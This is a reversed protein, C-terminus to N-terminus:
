FKAFISFTCCGFDTASLIAAATVFHFSCLIVLYCLSLSNHQLFIPLAIPVGGFCWGQGVPIIYYGCVGTCTMCICDHLFVCVCVVYNILLLCVYSMCVPVVVCVCVFVCVTCVCVYVYLCVVNHVLMCFGVYM